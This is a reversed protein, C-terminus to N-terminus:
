KLYFSPKKISINKNSSSINKNKSDSNILILDFNKNRKKYIKQLNKEYVFDKANRIGRIYFAINKKKAYDAMYEENCITVEINKIDILKEKILDSREQLNKTHKKKCNNAVVIYIHDFIELGKKLIYLHGEHFPDFSGPFICNM